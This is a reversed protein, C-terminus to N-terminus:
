KELVGRDHVELKKNDIVVYFPLQKNGDPGISFRGNYRREEGRETFLYGTGPESINTGLYVPVKIDDRTMTYPTTFDFKIHNKQDIFNNVYLVAALGGIVVIDRLWNGSDNEKNTMIILIETSYKFSDAFLKCLNFLAGRHYRLLHSFSSYDMM